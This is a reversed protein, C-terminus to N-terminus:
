GTSHIRWERHREPRIVSGTGTTAEPQGNMVWVGNGLASLMGCIDKYFDKHIDEMELRPRWSWQPWCSLNQVLSLIHTHVFCFKVKCPTKKTIPCVIVLDVRLYCPLLKMGAEAVWDYPWLTSSKVNAESSGNAWLAIGSNTQFVM